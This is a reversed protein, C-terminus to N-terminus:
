PAVESREPRRPDQEVCALQRMQMRKPSELLSAPALLMVDQNVVLDAGM